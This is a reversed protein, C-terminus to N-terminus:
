WPMDDDLEEKSEEAKEGKIKPLLQLSNVRVVWRFITDGNKNEYKHSEMVGVVEIRDGKHAYKTFYDAQNGWIDFDFFDTVERNYPRNVALTGKGIITGESSRTVVPEKVLNGTITINNM